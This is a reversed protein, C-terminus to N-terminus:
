IFIEIYFFASLQVNYWTWKPTSALQALVCNGKQQWINVRDLFHLSLNFTGFVKPNTILDTTLLFCFTKGEIYLDERKTLKFSLM